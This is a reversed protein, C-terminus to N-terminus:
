IKDLINRFAKSATDVVNVEQNRERINLLNQEKIKTEGAFKVQDLNGREIEFGDAPHFTVCTRLGEIAQQLFYM